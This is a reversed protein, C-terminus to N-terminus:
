VKVTPLEISQAVDRLDEARERVYSRTLTRVDSDGIFQGARVLNGTKALVNGLVMRRFGHMARYPVWRVGARNAADVLQGHLAAYSYPRDKVARRKSGIQKHRPDKEWERLERTVGRSAAMAGPIVYPGVYGIRDRWVRAIRLVRVADRPLPQVRDKALKDLEPRWRITREALDVDRWELNLLANSRGGLVADLVIAVYARWQRSSKPDLEALIRACEENTWEPVELRRQDRSLKMEYDAIPNETLYKRGRAFRFMSKLLQVTNAIQNVAVDQGRLAARLEDLSDPTVTDAHREPSFFALLVKWRSRFSKLTKPRWTEPVPHALVYREGLEGITIRRQPGTGQLKLREAVGEAFARVQRQNERSNPLSETRLKGRERWQCRILDARAADSFTELFVRVSRGHTGFEAITKRAM